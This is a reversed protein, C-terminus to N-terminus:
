SYVSFRGPECMVVMLIDPNIEKNKSLTELDTPSAICSKYPHSHLMILTASNCAEFSVHNFAQNFMRPEYLSGIYYVSDIKKGLLCLSFEYKQEAFYIEQLQKLTDDIFIISMNGLDIVNSVVPESEAQGQIIDSIPYTVFVFSIMLLVMVIGAIWLFVKKFKPEEPLENFDEDKFSELLEKEDM